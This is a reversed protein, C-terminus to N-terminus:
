SLSACPLRAVLPPAARPARPVVGAALAPGTDLHGVAVDRRLADFDVTVNLQPPQGGNDPLRGSALAIRCVDVLADARRAAPTRVDPMDAGRVPASLPDLAASATAAGGVDPVGPGRV